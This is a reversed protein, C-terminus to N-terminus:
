QIVIVKGSVADAFSMAMTKAGPATFFSPVSKDSFGNRNVRTVLHFAWTYQAQRVGLREIPNEERLVACSAM